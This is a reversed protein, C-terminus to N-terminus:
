HYVGLNGDKNKILDMHKEGNSFMMILGHPVKLRRDEAWGESRLDDLIENTKRNQFFRVKNKLKNEIMVDINENELSPTKGVFDHKMVKKVTAVVAITACVVLLVATVLVTLEVVAQGNAKGIARDM